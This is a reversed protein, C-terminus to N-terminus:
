VVNNLGIGFEVLIFFVDFNLCCIDKGWGLCVLVDDVFNVVINLRLLFFSYDGSIM